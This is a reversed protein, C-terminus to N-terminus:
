CLGLGVVPMWVCMCEIVLVGVLVWCVVVFRTKVVSVWVGMCGDVRVGTGLVSVYASAWGCADM